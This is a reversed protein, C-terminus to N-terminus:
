WAISISGDILEFDAGLQELISQTVYAEGSYLYVQRQSDMLFIVGDVSAMASECLGEEGSTMLAIETGDESHQLQFSGADDYFCDFGLHTMVGCLPYLLDGAENRGIFLKVSEGAIQMEISGMEFPANDMDPEPTPSSTPVPSPTLVPTPTPSPTQTVQNIAMEALMWSLTEPGVKGDIKHLGNARQFAFVAARTKRGFVGDTEGVDYGLGSLIDQMEAVDKGRMGYQLIREGLAYEEEDPVPTKTSNVTPQLLQAEQPTAIDDTEPVGREGGVGFVLLVTLALAIKRGRDM